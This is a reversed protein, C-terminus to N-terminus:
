RTEFPEIKPAAVTGSLLEVRMEAADLIGAAQTSLTMGREFAALSQELPLQGSELQGVIKELEGVLDEFRPADAPSTSDSSTM